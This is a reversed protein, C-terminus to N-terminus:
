NNYELFFKIALSVSDVFESLNSANGTYRQDGGIKKSDLRCALEGDERVFLLIHLVQDGARPIFKKEKGELLHISCQCSPRIGLRYDKTTLTGASIVTFTIRDGGHIHRQRRLRKKLDEAIFRAIENEEHVELAVEM